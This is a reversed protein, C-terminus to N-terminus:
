ECELLQKMTKLESETAQLLKEQAENTRILSRVTDCLRIVDLPFVRGLTAKEQIDDLHRRLIANPDIM